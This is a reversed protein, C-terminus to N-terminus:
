RGLRGSALSERYKPRKGNKKMSSTPNLNTLADARSHAVESEALALALCSSVVQVTRSNALKQIKKDYVGVLKFHNMQGILAPHAEYIDGSVRALLGGLTDADEIHSYNGRSSGRTRTRHYYGGLMRNMLLRDHKRCIKRVAILNVCIFKLVHMLEVGVATYGDAEEVASILLLDEGLIHDNRLFVPRTNRLETFHDIQRRVAKLTANDKIEPKAATRKRNSKQPTGM